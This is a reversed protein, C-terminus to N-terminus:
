STWDLAKVFEEETFSLLKAAELHAKQRKLVDILRLQKKFAAILDAKQRELLKNKSEASDLLSRDVMNGAQSSSPPKSQQTETVQGKLKNVAEMARKLQIDKTKNNADNAKVIREAAQLDKKM